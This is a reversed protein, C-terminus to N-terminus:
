FVLCHHHTIQRHYLDYVYGLSTVTVCYMAWDYDALCGAAVSVYLIVECATLVNYDLTDITTILDTSM